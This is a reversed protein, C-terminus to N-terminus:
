KRELGDKKRETVPTRESVSCRETKTEKQNKEGLFRSATESFHVREGNLYKQVTQKTEPNEMFDRFEKEKMLMEPTKGMLQMYEEVGCETRCRKLLGDALKREFGEETRVETSGDEARKKPAFIVQKDRYARPLSENLRKEDKEYREYEECLETYWGSYIAHLLSQIWNPKEPAPEDKRHLQECVINGEEDRRLRRFVANDNTGRADAVVYLESEDVAKIIRREIELRRAAPSGGISDLDAFMPKMAGNRDETFFVDLGGEELVNVDVRERGLMGPISKRVAYFDIGSLPPLKEANEQWFFLKYYENSGDDDTYKLTWQFNQLVDMLKARFGAPDPLKRYEGYELDALRVAESNTSSEAKLEPHQRYFARFEGDSLKKTDLFFPNVFVPTKGDEAVAIFRSPTESALVSKDPRNVYLCGDKADQYIRELQESSMKSHMTYVGNQVTVSFTNQRSVLEKAADDDGDGSLPPDYNTGSENLTVTAYQDEVHVAVESSSEEPRRPRLNEPVAEQEEDLRVFSRLVRLRGMDKKSATDLRFDNKLHEQLHYYWELVEQSLPM